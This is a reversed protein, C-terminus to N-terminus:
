ALASRWAGSIQRGMVFEGLHYATHDIVILVSGLISRGANHSVPALVDTDDRQILDILEQLDTHYRAITRQWGAEDTELSPNPWYGEPWSPSVHGPEAIYRLIDWQAIRVHEIQHWFTYPVNDPKKNFLAAPMDAVADAFSLHAGRGQLGLVLREKAAINASEPNTSSM